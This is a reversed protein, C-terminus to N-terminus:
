NPICDHNPTNYLPLYHRSVSKNAFNKQSLITVKFYNIIYAHEPQYKQVTTYGSSKILESKTDTGTTNKKKKKKFCM